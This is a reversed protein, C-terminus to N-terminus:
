DGLYEGVKYLTGNSMGIAKVIGVQDKVKWLMDNWFEIYGEYEIAALSRDGLNNEAVRNMTELAPAVKRGKHNAQASVESNMAPNYSLKYNHYMIKITSLNRYVTDLNKSLLSLYYKVRAPDASPDIQISLEKNWEDITKGFTMRKIAVHAVKAKIADLSHISALVEEQVLQAQNDIQQDLQSTM